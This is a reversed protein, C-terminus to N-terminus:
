EKPDIGPSWLRKFIRASNKERVEEEMGSNKYGMILDEKKTFM